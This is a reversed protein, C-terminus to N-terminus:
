PPFRYYTRNLYAVVDDIDDDFWVLGLMQECRRVQKRLGDASTVIRDSRTYISDDHCRVCHEGVLVEGHGPDAAGVPMSVLWGLLVVSWGAKCM